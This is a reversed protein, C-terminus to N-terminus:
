PATGECSDAWVPVLRGQDDFHFRGDAFGLAFLLLNHDYYTPPTGYLGEGRRQADIRSRLVATRGPGGLVSLEPLLAALFGVPGDNGSAVGLWPNVSEPVRQEDRWVRQLGDINTALTAKHEDDDHLLGSWLPVRIADYSGVPGTVPDVGFGTGPTYLVWDPAFGNPTAKTLVQVSSALVGDWPGAVGATALGEIVQLPVYSPNLRVAGGDLTFGYPAPLLTPGLGDVRRVEEAVITAALQEGWRRYRPVDWLRAAEVLAYAAWLDADSAANPDLVGWSGDDKAGWKWAPLKAGLKGGALNADMWGLVLDFTQRDNAILAHVMAYAQGESTSHGGGTLDVVRGDPQVFTVQYADWLPWPTATGCPVSPAVVTSTTPPVRPPGGQMLDTLDPEPPLMPDVAPRPAPEREAVVPRAEDSSSAPPRADASRGACALTLMTGAVIACPANM